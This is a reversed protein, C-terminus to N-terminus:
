IDGNVKFSDIRLDVNVSCMKSLKVLPVLGCLKLGAKLIGRSYGWLFGVAWARATAHRPQRIQSSARTKRPGIRKINRAHRILAFTFHFPLENAIVVHRRWLRELAFNIEWSARARRRSRSKHSNFDSRLTHNYSTQHYSWVNKERVSKIFRYITFAFSSASTLKRRSSINFYTWSRNIFFKLLM